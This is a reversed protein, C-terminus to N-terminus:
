IYGNFMMGSYASLNYPDNVPRHPNKYAVIKNNVYNMPNLSIDDAKKQISKKFSNLSSFVNSLSDNNAANTLVDKNISITGDDLVDLGSPSLQKKYANAINLFEKRLKANGDFKNNNDNTAVKMLQNYGSVLESISDAISDADDRLTISVPNDTTKHFSLYYAKNITIDNTPSTREDGNISFVANSPYQSVRDLGLTNILGTNKSYGPTDFGEVFNEDDKHSDENAKINFITSHMGNIGTAESSIILATNGLSDEDVHAELGIHSRNILRALKNQVDNTSEGDDITFQFEYTLNNINIDFSYDGTDLLKKNPQLYNGSNIQNAALQSVNIEFEPVTVSSSDGVYEAEVAQSNSSQAAKKYVMGGSESDSLESAINSLERANEKLDIAYKQADDSVDLKYTPTQSNLKVVKGYTNRLQNRTHSDYKSSTKNGYQSLYYSYVSSIMVTVEKDTIIM